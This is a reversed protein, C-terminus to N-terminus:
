ECVYSLADRAVGDRIWDGWTIYGICGPYEAQGTRYKKAKDELTNCGNYLNVSSSCYFEYRPRYETKVRSLNCSNLDISTCVSFCGGWIVGISVIFLCIVLLIQKKM